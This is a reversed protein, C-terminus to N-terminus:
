RDKIDNQRNSLVAMWVPSIFSPHMTNGPWSRAARFRHSEKAAVGIFLSRTWWGDRDCEPLVHVRVSIGDLMRLEPGIRQGWCSTSGVLITENASQPHDKQVLLGRMKQHRQQLSRVHNHQHATLFSSGWKQRPWLRSGQLAGWIRIDYYFINNILLFITWIVLWCCM